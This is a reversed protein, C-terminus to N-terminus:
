PRVRVNPVEEVQFRVRTSEGGRISVGTARRFVNACIVAAEGSGYWAGYRYVPESSGSWVEVVDSGFDRTVWM